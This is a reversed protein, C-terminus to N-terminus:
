DKESVSAYLRLQGWIEISVLAARRDDDAVARRVTLGPGRAYLKGFKNVMAVIPAAVHEHVVHHVVEYPPEIFIRDELYFIGRCIKEVLRQLGEKPILVGVSESGHSTENPGFGPYCADLPVQSFPKLRAIFKDRTSQRALADKPSKGFRPNLARLAKEAIGSAAAKEPDLCMGLRILLDNEIKGYEGNCRLCAPMQWKELDDLTTKPYWARPFVHDSTRQVPDKLCHVCKGPPPPYRSPV